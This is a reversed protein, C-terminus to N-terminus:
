LDCEPRLPESFDGSEWRTAMVEANNPCVVDYGSDIFDSVRRGTTLHEYMLSVTDYGWGFYKQGLLASIYGQQMLSLEFPLSDYSVTKLKGKAATKWSAMQSDDCLCTLGNDSCTCAGLLGWLGAVFLGDLDPYRAIIEDELAPGCSEATELCHVTTAITIDPYMASLRNTFGTLRHELNDAGARGTLVAITKAGAGMASALLDAGKAGTDENDM